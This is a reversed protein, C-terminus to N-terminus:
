SASSAHHFAIGSGKRQRKLIRAQELESPSKGKLKSKRVFSLFFSSLQGSNRLMTGRRPDNKSKTRSLKKKRKRMEERPEFKSLHGNQSKGFKEEKRETM